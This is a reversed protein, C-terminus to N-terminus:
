GSPHSQRLRKSAHKIATTHEKNMAIPLFDQLIEKISERARKRNRAVQEIEKELVMQCYDSVQKKEEIQGSPFLKRWTAVGHMLHDHALISQLRPYVYAPCDFTEQSFFMNFLDRTFNVDWMVKFALHHSLQQDKTFAILRIMRPKTVKNPVMQATEKLKLLVSQQDRVFNWTCIIATTFRIIRLSLNRKMGQRGLIFKTPNKMVLQYLSGWDLGNMALAIVAGLPFFNRQLLFQCIGNVLLPCMEQCQWKRVPNRFELNKWILGTPDFDHVYKTPEAKTTWKLVMCAKAGCNCETKIDM